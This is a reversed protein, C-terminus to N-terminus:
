NIKKLYFYIILITGYGVTTVTITAYYFSNIYIYICSEEEM